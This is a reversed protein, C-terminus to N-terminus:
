GGKSAGHNGTITGGQFNLTCDTGDLKVGGKGGTIKGSNNGSSDKITFSSGKSATSGFNINVSVTCTSCGASCKTAPATVTYGNLDLTIDLVETSYQLNKHFGTTDGLLTIVYKGGYTNNQPAFGDFAKQLDEYYTTEGNHEVKVADTAAMPEADALPEPDIEDPAFILEIDEVASADSELETAFATIAMSFTMLFALLLCLARKLM